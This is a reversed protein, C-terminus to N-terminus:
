EELAYKKFEKEFSTFDKEYTKKVAQKFTQGKSVLRLLKYFKETQHNLILHRVLLESERYFIILAEKSTPYTKAAILEELPLYEGKTLFKVARLDYESAQEQMAIARMSIFEAFGENLFIPIPGDLFRFVIVHTIEHALSKRATLVHPRRYFFLEWGSTFADGHATVRAKEKFDNWRAEDTFVFIHVKKTWTDKRIGFIDKIWSYFVEANIYVIEAWDADVFHYIFHGTEAHQWKKKDLALASRGIPSIDTDSLRKWQVTAIDAAAGAYQGVCVALLTILVFLAVQVKKHRM